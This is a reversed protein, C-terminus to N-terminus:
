KATAAKLRTVSAICVFQMRGPKSVTVPRVVVNAVLDRKELIDELGRPLDCRLAGDAYGLIRRTHAVYIRVIINDAGAVLTGRVTRCPGVFPPGSHSCVADAPISAPLDTATIATV